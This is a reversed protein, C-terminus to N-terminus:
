HQVFKTKPIIDSLVFVSLVGILLPILGKIIWKSKEETFMNHRREFQWLIM